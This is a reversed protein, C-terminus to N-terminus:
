FLLFVGDVIDQLKHIDILFSEVIEELTTYLLHTIQGSVVVVKVIMM